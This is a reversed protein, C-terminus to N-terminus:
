AAAAQAIQGAQSLVYVLGKPTRSYFRETALPEVIVETFKLEKFTCPPSVLQAPLRTSGWFLSAANLCM